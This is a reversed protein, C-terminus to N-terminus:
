LKKNNNEYKDEVLKLKILVKVIWMYIRERILLKEMKKLQLTISLTKPM